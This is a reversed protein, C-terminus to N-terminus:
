LVSEVYGWGDEEMIQEVANRVLDLVDRQLSMTAFRGDPRQGVLWHGMVADIAEGSVGKLRLMSRLYLRNANPRLTFVGSIMRLITKPKITLPRHKSDIMFFFGPRTKCHARVATYKKSPLRQNTPNQITRVTGPHCRMIRQLMLEHHRKYERIMEVCVNTLPVIRSNYYGNFDKEAILVTRAELDFEEEFFYRNIVPRHGTCYDLMLMLYATYTNHYDVLSVMLSNGLTILREQLYRIVTRVTERRPMFAVGMCGSSLSDSSIVVPLSLCNFLEGNSQKERDVRDVLDNITKSHMNSLISAPRTTYHLQSARRVDDRGTILLADAIDGSHWRLKEFMVREVRDITVRSNAVEQIKRLLGLIIARLIYVPASFLHYKKQGKKRMAILRDYVWSLYASCGLSLYPAMMMAQGRARENPKQKQEDFLPRVLVQSKELCYAIRCKDPLSGPRKRYYRMKAVDELGRSYFLATLLVTYAEAHVRDDKDVAGEFAEMTHTILDAIEDIALADYATPFLNNCRAVADRLGAEQVARLRPHFRHDDLGTPNFLYGEVPPALDDCGKEDPSPDSEDFLRLQRGGNFPIGPADLEFYRGLSCSLRSPPVGAVAGGGNGGSSRGGPREHFEKQGIAFYWAWILEYLENLGAVESKPQREILIRADEGADDKTECGDIKTAIKELMAWYADPALPSAPLKSLLTQYAQTGLERVHHNIRELYSPSTKERLDPWILFLHTILQIYCQENDLAENGNQDRNEFGCRLIGYLPHKDNHRRNSKEKKRRVRAGEYELQPVADLLRDAEIRWEEAVPMDVENGLGDILDLMSIIRWSAHEIWYMDHPIDFTNIFTELQKNVEDKEEEIVGTMRLTRYLDLYEVLKKKNM